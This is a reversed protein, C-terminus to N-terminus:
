RFQRNTEDYKYGAKKLKETVEGLDIDLGEALSELDDYDDRLKLNLFSVLMAPDQPIM